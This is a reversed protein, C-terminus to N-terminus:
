EAYLQSIKAYFQMIGADKNHLSHWIYTNFNIDPPLIQSM